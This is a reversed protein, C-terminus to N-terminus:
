LRRVFSRPLAPGLRLFGLPGVCVAVCRSALVAAHGGLRDGDGGGVFGGSEADFDDEGEVEFLGGVVTPREGQAIREPCAHSLEVHQVARLDLELDLGEPGHLSAIGVLAAGEGEDVGGYSSASEQLTGCSLQMEDGYPGELVQVMGAAFGGAVAAELGVPVLAVVLDEGPRVDEGVQLLECGM